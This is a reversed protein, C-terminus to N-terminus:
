DPRQLLEIIEEYLLPFDRVIIAWIIEDSVNDYSHIIRNRTDVIKRANTIKVDSGKSLIRSVAEGIIEINREVAKKTKLDTKFVFFDKKDGVFQNIEEISLKIDTLWTLIDNAM